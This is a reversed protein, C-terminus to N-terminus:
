ATACNKSWNFRNGNLLSRRESAAIIFRDFLIRSFIRKRSQWEPHWQVGIFYPHDKLSFAEVLEDPAEAEKTLRPALQNVGQGHLSNVEIDEQSGLWHAFSGNSSIKVTHVYAYKENFDPSQSERHDMFGNTEHVKPHLTGGLAVNMEQFGRCIGLLPINQEICHDILTFSLADRSEDTKPEDHTAAYRHPAVNSHSGTLLVGDLMTLLQKLEQADAGAPLLLPSAGADRVANLYLENVSQVDYGEVQKRCCIVGIVPKTMGNEKSM